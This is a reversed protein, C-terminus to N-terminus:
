KLIDSVDLAPLTQEPRRNMGNIKATLDLYSSIQPDGQMQLRFCLFTFAPATGKNLQSELRRSLLTWMWHADEGARSSMEPFTRVSVGLPANGHHIEVEDVPCHFHVM